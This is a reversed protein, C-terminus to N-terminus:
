SSIGSSEDRLLGFEGNDSSGIGRLRSTMQGVFWQSRLLHHLYRSEVQSSPRLVLYDPSVIGVESSRGVAGQYASM